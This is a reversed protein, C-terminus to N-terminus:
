KAPLPPLILSGHAMKPYKSWVLLLPLSMNKIGLGPVGTPPARPSGWPSADPVKTFRRMRTLPGLLPIITRKHIKDPMPLVHGQFFLLIMRESGSWTVCVRMVGRASRSALSEHGKPLYPVQPYVNLTM